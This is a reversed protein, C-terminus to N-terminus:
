RRGAGGHTTGSSSRHTSSGGGGSSTERKRRSVNRYLYLSSANTINLSNERLYSNANARRRVTKMGAQMVAVRILALVLGIAAGIGLWRLLLGASFPERPLNGSDYPRDTRAQTVFQDCLDAFANAAEYYADSHFHEDVIIDLMYDLGADTLATIGYGCTSIYCIRDYPDVSILLLAGDRGPGFGFGNYDYYDDATSVYGRGELDGSTVIVVDFRQRSSIEDLKALLAAEEAASFLDAGDNLRPPKEGAAAVSLCLAICLVAALLLAFLKKGM